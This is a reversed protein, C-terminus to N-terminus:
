CGNLYCNDLEAQSLTRNWIRVEDIMGYFPNTSDIKRLGISADYTDSTLLTGRNYSRTEQQGDVYFNLFNGDYSVAVFHWHKSSVPLNSVVSNWGNTTNKFEFSLNGTGGGVALTYIDWDKTIVKQYSWSSYTNVWAAITIVSPNLNASNPINVYDNSGDFSLASGYTGNTWIHTDNVYKATIPEEFSYSAIMRTSTPLSSKMDAQIETQNLTRNYIRVEDITGNFWYSNQYSGLLIGTGSSRINGTASQSDQLTGNVYLKISSGDYTIALHFWKNLVFGVNTDKVTRNGTINTIGWRVVNSEPLVDIEADTIGKMVAIQYNGTGSADYVWTAMTIQAMGGAPDISTSTPVSVYDNIGNFFLANGYKGSSTHLDTPTSSSYSTGDNFTEGYFTGNSGYGSLDHAITGKAENFNLYLNAGSTTTLSFPNVCSTSNWNNDTDNAYFCWQVNAGATSNLTTVNWSMNMTGSFTIYSSNSWVGSNNTSFIYGALQTNDTWNLAFNTPQGAVTNNVFNLWYQPAQSVIASTTPFSFISSTNWKGSTDNASVQWRITCGVTSNIIKITSSFNSLGSMPVWSTDNTLTGTCNDFSFIYGSLGINDAWNLSFLTPQGAITNNNYPTSWSIVPKEKFPFDTESSMENTKLNFVFYPQYDPYCKEGIYDSGIAVCDTYLDPNGGGGADVGGIRYEDVAKGNGQSNFTENDIKLNGDYWAKVNSNTGNEYWYLEFYHWEGQGININSTWYNNTGILSYARLKYVGADNWVGLGLIQTGHDYFGIFYHRYSNTPFTKFNVYVRAYVESVGSLNKTVYEIGNSYLSYSGDYETDNVIQPTGYISSWDSLDGAEFGNSFIIFKSDFGIGKKLLEQQFFNKTFDIDKIITKLNGNSSYNSANYTQIFNDKIKQIYSLEQQEEIKSVRIDSFSTIYQFSLAIVYIIIASSIIFFQAKMM